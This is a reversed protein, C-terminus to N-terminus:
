ISKQIETKILSISDTNLEILIRYTNKHIFKYEIKTKYIKIDCIPENKLNLLNLKKDDHYALKTTTELDFILPILHVIKPNNEKLQELLTDHECPEILKINEDLKNLESQIEYKINKFINKIQLECKYSNNYLEQLNDNINNKISNINKTLNCVVKYIESFKEINELILNTDISIINFHKNQKKKILEKLLIIGYIISDDTIGTNSLYVTIEGSPLEIIELLGKKVINSTTSIFIGDMKNHKIDRIFKDVENQNVPNKYNKVEILINYDKTILQYDGKMPEKSTNIISDEKFFNSVIQEIINESIAGKVSSKNISNTFVSLSNNLQILTNEHIQHEKKMNSHIDSLTTSSNMLDTNILERINSFKSEESEIHSKHTKECDTLKNILPLIISTEPNISVQAYEILTRGFNIIKILENYRQELPISSIWPIDDIKIQISSM